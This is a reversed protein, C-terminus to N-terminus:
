STQMPTTINSDINIKFSSSFALTLPYSWSNKNSMICLYLTAHKLSVRVLQTQWFALKSCITEVRRFLIFSSAHLFTQTCGSIFHKTHRFNQHNDMWHCTMNISNKKSKTWTDNGLTLLWTSLNSRCYKYVPWLTKGWSSRFKHISTLSVTIAISPLHAWM